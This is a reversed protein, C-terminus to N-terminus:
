VFEALEPHEPDDDAHVYGSRVGHQYAQYAQFALVRRFPFAGTQTCRPPLIFEQGDYDGLTHEAAPWVAAPQLQDSEIPRMGKVVLKGAPWVPLRTAKPHWVRFVLKDSSASRRLGARDKAPVFSCLMRHFADAIGACLLLANRPSYVDAATLGVCNLTALKSRCPLLHAARTQQSNGRLGTLMCRTTHLVFAPLPDAANNGVSSEALALPMAYELWHEEEVGYYAVAAARFHVPAVVDSDLARFRLRRPSFLAATPLRYSSFLQLRLQDVVPVVRGLMRKMQDLGEAAIAQSQHLQRVRATMRKMENQGEVAVQELRKVAAALFALSATVDIAPPDAHFVLKVGCKCFHSSNGDVEHKSTLTPKGSRADAMLQSLTFGCNAEERPQASSAPFDTDVQAM